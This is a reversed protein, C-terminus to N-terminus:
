IDFLRLSFYKDHYGILTFLFESKSNENNQIYIISERFTKLIKIM